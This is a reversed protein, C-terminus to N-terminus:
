KEISFAMEAINTIVLGKGYAREYPIAVLKKRLLVSNEAELTDEKLTM